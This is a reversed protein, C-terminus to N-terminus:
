NKEPTAVKEPTGDDPCDNINKLNVRHITSPRAGKCRFFNAVSTFDFTIVLAGWPKIKPKPHDKLWQKGDFKPNRTRHDFGASKLATDPLYFGSVWPGGLYFLSIVFGVLSLIALILAISGFYQLSPSFESLDKVSLQLVVCICFELYFEYM